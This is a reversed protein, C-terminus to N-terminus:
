KATYKASKLKKTINGLDRPEKIQQRYYERDEKDSFARIAPQRFLSSKEDKKIIELITRCIDKGDPALGQSEKRKNKKDNYDDLYLPKTKNPNKRLRSRIDNTEVENKKEEEKEMNDKNNEKKM